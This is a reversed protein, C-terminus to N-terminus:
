GFRVQSAWGNSAARKGFRLQSAWKKLRLSEPQWSGNDVAYADVYPAMYDDIERMSLSAAECGINLTNRSIAPRSYPLQFVCCYVQVSCM